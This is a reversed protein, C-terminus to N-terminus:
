EVEERYEYISEIEHLNLFLPNLPYEKSPLLRGNLIEIVSNTENIKLDLKEFRLHVTNGSKYTVAVISCKESM